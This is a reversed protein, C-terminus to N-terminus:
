LTIRRDAVTRGGVEVLGNQLQRTRIRSGRGQVIDLDRGLRATVAIAAAGTAQDEVIGLAPAFMRSRLVGAAEDSWAYSYNRGDTFDAPDLAEVDLAKELSIWRYKTTWEAKGTIWTDDGDYRVVVDGAKEVIMSVPTDQQKLWWATGVSPHGAFSLETTPTFIGITAVGGLVSHVFVTESFGLETAIQQERGATASSSRVIGLENGFGGAEDTFVRVVEIAIM